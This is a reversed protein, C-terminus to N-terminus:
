NSVLYAVLRQTALTVAAGSLANTWHWGMASWTSALGGFGLITAAWWKQTPHWRPHIRRRTTATAHTLAASLTSM